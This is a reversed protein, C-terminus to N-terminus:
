NIHSLWMKIVSMDRQPVIHHQTEKRRTHKWRWELNVNKSTKLFCASETIKQANEVLRRASNKTPRQAPCLPILYPLLMSRFAM